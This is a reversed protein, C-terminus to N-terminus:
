TLTAKKQEIERSYAGLPVACFALLTYSDAITHRQYFSLWFVILFFIDFSTLKHGRLRYYVRFSYILVVVFSILGYQFIWKKAGANGGQQKTSGYTIDSPLNNSGVGLWLQDNKWAQTFRKDFTATTRNDIDDFKESEIRSIILDNFFTNAMFSFVSFVFLFLVVQKIKNFGTILFLFLIIYFALSFSFLGSILFVFFPFRLEKRKGTFFLLFGCLTGILGPEEAVCQFRPFFSFSVIVNFYLHLYSEVTVSTERVVTAVIHYVNLFQYVIFEVLSVLLFFSLVWSFYYVIRYQLQKNLLLFFVGYLLFFFYTKDPLCGNYVTSITYPVAFAILYYAAIKKDKSIISRGCSFFVIVTFLLTLMWLGYSYYISFNAVITQLASFVFLAILININSIRLKQVKSYGEM